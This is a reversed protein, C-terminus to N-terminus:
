GVLFPDGRNGFDLRDYEMQQNRSEILRFTLILANVGISLTHPFSFSVFHSASLASDRLAARVCM